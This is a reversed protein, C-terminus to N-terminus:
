GDETMHRNFANTFTWEDGHSFKLVVTLLQPPYEKDNVILKVMEGAHDNDGVYWMEDGEESLAALMPVDLPEDITFQEDPM